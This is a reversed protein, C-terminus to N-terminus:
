LGELLITGNVNVAIRSTGAEVMPAQVSDAAAPAGRLGVIMQKPMPPMGGDANVAADKVKYGRAGFSQAVLDARRKFDDIAATTLEDEIKRRAEPSVSFYVGGLKLTSQLKGVLDSLAKFDTSKLLLESRARWRVIRTKDYVPYTQYGGTRTTVAATAKAVKVADAVAKNVTDALRVPNADEEEVYLTAHMTDNDVDMAAQGQLAVRGTEHDHGHDAHALPTAALVALLSLASITKNM